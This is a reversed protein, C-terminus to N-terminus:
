GNLVVVHNRRSPHDEPVLAEVERVLVPEPLSRPELGAFRRYVTMMIAGIAALPLILFSVGTFPFSTLAMLQRSRDFRLREGPVSALGSLGEYLVGFFLVAAQHRHEKWSGGWL